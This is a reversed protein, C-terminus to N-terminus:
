WSCYWLITDENPFEHRLYQMVMMRYTYENIEDQAWGARLGYDIDDKIDEIHDDDFRIAQYSDNECYEGFLDLMDITGSELHFAQEVEKQLEDYDYIVRCMTTKM